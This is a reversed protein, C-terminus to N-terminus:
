RHHKGRRAAYAARRKAAWEKQSMKKAPANKISCVRILTILRNLHWKQFEIPINLSIMWYYIIEATIVENNSPKKKDDESFWTATMPSEIYKNIKDIHQNTLCQYILPNVNQTITMCRIYDLTMERTKKYKPEKSLFPINWKSEWKALSVLSHELALTQGKIQVFCQTDNDFFESDPVEIKLM